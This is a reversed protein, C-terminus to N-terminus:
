GAVALGRVVLRSKLPNSELLNKTELPPIAPDMLFRGSHCITVKFSLLQNHTYVSHYTLFSDGM